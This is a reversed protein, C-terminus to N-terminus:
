QLLQQLTDYLAQGRLDRAIIKGNPDILMNAPISQIKYLQAVENQWYKLDSVHNWALNDDNIAKVWSDRNQDLSVGLVTFNKDKFANYAAVVAPNEMRCPRCWAAWFDVLVYKGRFQNLSVPQNSTDPQSFNPAITGVSGVKSSAITEEIRNAYSGTKAEATLQQYREELATADGAVPSTVFLVFASVPSAPKLKIYEDVQQGVKLRTKEFVDILSDRKAGPQAENILKVTTNLKNKLPGFKLDFLTYDKQLPAGTVALKDLAAVSGTVVVNNKDLFLDQSKTQGIFSLQYLDASEINGFLKFKGKKSYDASLIDSTGARHLFVMTSDPLGTITGTISYNQDAAAPATQAFILTPFLLYFLFQKM